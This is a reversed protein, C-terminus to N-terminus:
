ISLNDFRASSYQSGFGLSGMVLEYDRVEMVMQAPNGMFVRITRKVINREIRIKQWTNTKLVVPSSSIATLKTCVSNKVLYIGQLASVPDTTLLVFYYRTSDKLGLFLCVEQPVESVMPMVDAEFVFDGFIRNKLIARNQPLSVSQMYVSAQPTFQLFYNGQSRTMGWCAPCSFSFDQIGKNNSFNQGYQLIYGDPVTQSVM